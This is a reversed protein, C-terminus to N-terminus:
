QARFALVFVGERGAPVRKGSDLGDRLAATAGAHSKNLPEKSRDQRCSINRRGGHFAAPCM